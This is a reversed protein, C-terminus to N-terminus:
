IFTKLCKKFAACNEICKLENPLNNWENPGCFSFSADGFTKNKNRPVIYTIENTSNSRLRRQLINQVFMENLYSPGLDHPCKFALSLMKYCNRDKIPLWHITYRADTSSSYKNKYLIMKACRNQTIRLLQLVSNQSGYFVENCYDMNSMLLALGIQQTTNISLYWCIKGMIFINHTKTLTPYIIKSFSMRM